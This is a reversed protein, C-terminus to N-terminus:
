LRRLRPGQYLGSGAMSLGITSFICGAFDLVVSVFICLQLQSVSGYAKVPSVALPLPLPALLDETAHADAGGQRRTLEMSEAMLPRSSLPNSLTGLPSSVAELSAATAYVSPSVDAPWAIVDDAIPECRASTTREPEDGGDELSSSTTSAVSGVSSAPSTTMSTDSDADAALRKSSSSNATSLPILGVLMIGLYNCLPLLM